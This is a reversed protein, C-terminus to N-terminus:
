QKKKGKKDRKFEKFEQLTVAGNSDADMKFFRKEEKEVSVEKKDMKNKFEKLGIVGDQNTDIKKFKQEPTHKKKEQANTLSFAFLALVLTGIKLRKLKM